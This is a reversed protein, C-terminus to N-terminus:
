QPNPTLSLKKVTKGTRKRMNRELLSSEKM